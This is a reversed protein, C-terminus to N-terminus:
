ELSALINLLKKKVSFDVQAIVAIVALTILKLLLHLPNHNQSHQFLM